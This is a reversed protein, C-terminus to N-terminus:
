GIDFGMVCNWVTRIVDFSMYASDTSTSTTISGDWLRKRSWLIPHHLFSRGLNRVHRNASKCLKALMQKIDIHKISMIYQKKVSYLYLTSSPRCIYFQSIYFDWLVDIPCKTNIHFWQSVIYSLVIIM